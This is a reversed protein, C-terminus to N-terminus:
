LFELENEVDRFDDNESFTSNQYALKRQCVRALFQCLIERWNEADKM